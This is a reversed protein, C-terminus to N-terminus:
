VRPTCLLADLSVILIGGHVKKLRAATKRASRLEHTGLRRVPALAQPFVKRMAGGGISGADKDAQQWLSVARTRLTMAYVCVRWESCGGEIPLRAHKM